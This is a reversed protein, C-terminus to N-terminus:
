YKRMDGHFCAPITGCSNARMCGMDNYKWRQAESDPHHFMCATDSGARRLSYTTSQLNLASIMPWLLLFLMKIPMNVFYFVNIKNYPIM